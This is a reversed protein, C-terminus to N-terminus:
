RLRWGPDAALANEAALPLWGPGTLDPPRVDAEGRVATSAGWRRALDSAQRDDGRRLQVARLVAYCRAQRREALQQQERRPHRTRVRMFLRAAEQLAAQATQDATPGGIRLATIARAAWRIAQATHRDSGLRPARAHHPDHVDLTTRGLLAGGAAGHRSLGQRQVHAHQLGDDGDPGPSIHRPRDEM